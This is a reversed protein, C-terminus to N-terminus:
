PQRIEIVRDRGALDQHLFYQAQPFVSQAINMAEIGLSSEIELLLTGKLALRTQAQRMLRKIINLGSEGGDLAECPEWKHVSLKKLKKSPIYPLNACILDFQECLPELLNSQLFHIQTEAHIDANKEAIKLANRSIDTALIIPVSPIEAALTVAIVGSGTGVDAIKPYAHNKVCNIAIQVLLETEPRPILVNPTIKFPRGYFEWQGLIYPLPVGQLLRDVNHQLTHNEGATLEYEGHALVWSKPQDLVQSLLLLSTNGPTDIGEKIFKENLQHFLTQLNISKNRWWLSNRLKM